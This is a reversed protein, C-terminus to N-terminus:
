QGGTSFGGTSSPYAFLSDSWSAVTAEVSDPAPSLSATTGAYGTDPSSSTGGLDFHLSPPASVTPFTASSGPVTSLSVHTEFQPGASFPPFPGMFSSTFPPPGSYPGAFQSGVFQGAFMQPGTTFLQPGPRFQPAFLPSGHGFQQASSSGGPQSEQGFFIQEGLHDYQGFDMGQFSEIMQDLSPIEAAELEPSIPSLPPQLQMATYMMKQNDRLKKNNKREREQNVLIDRQNKIMGVFKRFM